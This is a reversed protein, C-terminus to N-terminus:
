DSWMAATASSLRVIALLRGAEAQARARRALNAQRQADLVDPLRGAGLEYARRALRLNEEALTLAENRLSLEAEAAALGSLADAVEGFARLVTARYRADARRAEAQARRVDARLVGGRFIPLTLAPGLAWGSSAYSFLTDPDLATQAYNASLRVQPFQNAVRVGIDATAAHLAAEAARIDPRARLLVSPVSVPIQEPPSFDALTFEPATRIGPAHGTLIVLANRAASLRDRLGPLAARDQALQTQARIRDIAGVAGADIAREVLALTERDDAIISELAEIEAALAASEIAKSTIQAALTLRAADYRFSEAEFRATASERERRAGGFLDLDYSVGLGLSYRSITRTPFGDFGFAAANIRTREASVNAGLEPATGGYVIDRSARAADLAADAEGITPSAALAERVLMDLEPANFSTWWEASAGPALNSANEDAGVHRAPTDVEPRAFDPGLTVCAGLPAMLVLAAPAMKFETWSM